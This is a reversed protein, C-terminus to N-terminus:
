YGDEDKDEKDDKVNIEKTVKRIIGEQL